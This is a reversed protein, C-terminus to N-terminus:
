KISALIADVMKVKNIARRIDSLFEAEEFDSWTSRATLLELRAEAVALQELAKQRAAGLNEEDTSLVEIEDRLDDAKSALETCQRFLARYEDPPELNIRFTPCAELLGMKGFIDLLQHPCVELEARCKAVRHDRLRKRLIANMSSQM